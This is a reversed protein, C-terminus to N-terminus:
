SGIAQRTTMPSRDFGSNTKEYGFVFAASNTARSKGDFGGITSPTLRIADRNSELCSYDGGGDSMYSNFKGCKRRARFEDRKTAIGDNLLSQNKPLLTDISFM